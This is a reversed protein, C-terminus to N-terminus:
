KVERGQVTIKTEPRILKALFVTQVLDYNSVVIRCFDNSGDSNFGWKLLANISLDM